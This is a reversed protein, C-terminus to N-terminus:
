SEGEASAAEHVMDVAHAQGVADQDVTFQAPEEGRVTRQVHEVARQFATGPESRWQQVCRGDRWLEVVDEPTPHFPNTLRLEGDTGVLRTFTSPPRRMGASLILRVEDPFDVLAAVDLDVSAAGFAMRAVARVPEKGTLLRALRLPYGGVDYLAGGGLERQLRINRPNGVSFHFESVIERLTGVRGDALLQRVRRSQPHFPFVYAEWVPTGGTTLRALDAADAATLAVPKECLVAKGSSHAAAAWSVHQDNPVAVYVADVDPAEVAERYSGARQVGNAAAWREARDPTRSGVVVATGGAARLAPLFARAAINATGLVAWRLGPGGSNPDPM